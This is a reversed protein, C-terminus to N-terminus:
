LKVPSMLYLFQQYTFTEMILAGVPKDGGSLSDILSPDAFREMLSM